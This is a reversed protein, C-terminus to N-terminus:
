LNLNLIPLATASKCGTRSKVQNQKAQTATKSILWVLYSKILFDYNTEYLKKTTVVWCLRILGLRVWDLGVEIWTPTVRYNTQVM